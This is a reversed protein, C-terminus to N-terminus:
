RKQPDTFGNASAEEPSLDAEVVIGSFYPLYRFEGKASHEWETRDKLRVYIGASVNIVEKSKTLGAELIVKAAPTPRLIGGNLIAMKELADRISICDRIEDASCNWERRIFSHALDHPGGFGEATKEAHVIQTRVEDLRKELRAAEARLGSIYDELANRAVVWDNTM